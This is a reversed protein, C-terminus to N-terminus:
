KRYNDRNVKYDEYTQRLGKEFSISPRWGLSFLKSSDLLKRPTGDPHIHDFEIEGDFGVVTAIKKGLEKM